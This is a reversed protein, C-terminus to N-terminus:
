IKSDNLCFVAYVPLYRIEKKTSFNNETIRYGEQVTFKKMLVSLSKAKSMLKTTIEIPIIQGMRNQIVFNVEAKGQSQYYYLSYGAEILTKAIHNEYLTERINEDTEFEKKNINLMSYLLGDDLLYLKFSEEERCSSLPSKINRIKYSRCVIQNNVLYNISSEYEKARHGHGILGYQFKKNGKRLQEPLSSLVEIGRPIDILNKSLAIEKIYLDLTKQKIANLKADSVGNLYNIVVEPLGGVMLYEYFLDLAVQHFSCTRRKIFSERILDALQKEDRAWLYEEFDMEYMAKFQLEIGKFESLNERRSTIVIIHYSSNGSGFLKVGKIIDINNVNDLVILTDNPLITEGSLVSLNVIIKDVSKEQKFVEVLRLNNEANFYVVNKYENKGFELVTFTKGIQRSGSVVLPKRILDNKWKQFFSVIKREM